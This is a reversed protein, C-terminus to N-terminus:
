EKNSCLWWPSSTQFFCLVNRTTCINEIFEGKLVSLLPPRSPSFHEYCFFFAVNLEDMHLGLALRRSVSHGRHLPLHAWDKSFNQQLCHTRRCPLQLLSQKKAWYILRQPQVRAKAICVSRYRKTPKDASFLFCEADRWIPDQIKFHKQLNFDSCAHMPKSEPCSLM